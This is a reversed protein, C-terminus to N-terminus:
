EWSSTSGSEFDGLFIVPAFRHPEMGTLGDNAWFIVGSGDPSSSMGVPFSGVRGVHADTIEPDGVVGLTFWVERGTDETTASFYGIGQDDVFLDRPASSAPGPELDGLLYTSVGDSFWPEEGHTPDSSVFLVGRDLVSVLEGTEAARLFQAAGVAGIDAVFLSRGHTPDFAIFFVRGAAEVFSEPWSSGPGPDIDDLQKFDVGDTVIVEFGDGVDASLYLLDDIVALHSPNSSASPNLDLALGVSGNQYRYLERDGGPGRAAFYTAGDYHVYGEPEDDGTPDTDVLVGDLYLEFEVSSLVTGGLAFIEGPGWFVPGHDVAEEATTGDWSWLEWSFATDASLHGFYVDDGDSDLLFLDLVGSSPLVVAAQTGTETADTQWLQTGSSGDNALFHHLGRAIYTRYPAPLGGPFSGPDRHDTLQITGAITGDTRWLEEGQEPVFVRFFVKDDYVALEPSSHPGLRGPLELLLSTNAATGDSMFLRYDDDVFVVFDGDISFVRDWEDEYFDLAKMTGPATGDSCWLGGDDDDRLTWCARTGNSAVSTPIGFGGALNTVKTEVGASSMWIQRGSAGDTALFLFGGAIGAYSVPLSGSTGGLDTEQVLQTGDWSWLEKGDVGDDGAFFLSGNVIALGSVNSPDDGGVLDNIRQLTGGASIRWLERGNVGDDATFYLLGEYITLEKPFSSSTGARVDHLVTPEGEGLSWLEWGAGDGIASVYILSGLIETENVPDGPISTDECLTLTGDVDTLPTAGRFTPDLMECGWLENGGVMTFNLGEEFVHVLYEARSGEIRNTGGVTGDSLFAVDGGLGDEGIFVVGQSTARLGRPDAGVTADGVTNIDRLLTPTRAFTVSNALLLAAVSLIRAVSM